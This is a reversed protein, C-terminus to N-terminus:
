NKPKAAPAAPAKPAAAPAAYPLGTGGAAKWADEAEKPLPLKLKIAVRIALNDLLPPNVYPSLADNKLVLTYKQEAIVENLATLIKIRYPQLLQEQKQGTVEQSYQQWYLLKQRSKNLDSLAMERAKAPMTASDKKFTSDQRMFTKYTYDYEDKLSDQQFSELEQSVKDIGPMLGLVLQEDFYGIKTPQQANANGTSFLFALVVLCLSFLQKM